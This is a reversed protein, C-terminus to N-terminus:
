IEVKSKPKFVVCQSISEYGPIAVISDTHKAKLHTETVAAIDVNYNILDASLQEVAHPKSLAAANIVYLSPTTNDNEAAVPASPQRIVTCLTKSPVREHRGDNASACDFESRTTIIVPIKAPTVTETQTTAHFTNRHQVRRGARCGRRPRACGLTATHERLWQGPKPAALKLSLLSERTLTWKRQGNANDFKDNYSMMISIIEFVTLLVTLLVVLPIICRNM